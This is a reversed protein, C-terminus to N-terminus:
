RQMSGASALERTARLCVARMGACDHRNHQLLRGWRRQQNPTLPRGSRLTPRLARITEGVHGPGAGPPVEYGILAVYNVLRGDAPKDGPHFKNVWRRAVGLANVYRREFRAVLKPDEDRLSRVVELDYQSWSVIRRDGHEARLVVIQVAERLERAEPGAPEFEPDVVVQHVNPEAGKGRRRLIGLLVPLKGKEGEFDVYLARRAEDATLRKFAPEPLPMTMTRAEACDIFMTSATPDKEWM